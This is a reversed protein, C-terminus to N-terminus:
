LSFHQGDYGELLHEDTARRLAAFDVRHSFHILVTRRAGSRLGLAAAEQWTIHGPGVWGAADFSADIFFLDSDLMAEPLPATALTGGPLAKVDPVYVLSRRGREVRYGYTTITHHTVVFPTVRYGACECPTEPELAAFTALSHRLLYDFEVQAREVFSAPGFVQVPRGEQGYRVITELCELGVVHDRHQHTIFIGDIRELGERLAQHYLDPGADLLISAGDRLWLSMTGRRLHPDARAAECNQCHCGLQPLRYAGGSGLVVVEM